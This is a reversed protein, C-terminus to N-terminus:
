LFGCGFETGVSFEFGLSHSWEKTKTTEYAVEMSMEQEIDSDNKMTQTKIVKPPRDNVKFVFFTSCKIIFSKSQRWILKVGFAM